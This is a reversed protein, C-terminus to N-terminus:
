YIYKVSYVCIYVSINKYVHILQNNEHMQIEIPIHVHVHVHVQIHIHVYIYIYIHIYTYICIHTCQVYLNMQAHLQM